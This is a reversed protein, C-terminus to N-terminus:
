KAVHKGRKIAATDSLAEPAHSPAAITSDELSLGLAVGAEAVTDSIATLRLQKNLQAASRRASCLLQLAATDCADVESLDLALEPARALVEALVNRLEDATSIHLAGELKLLGDPTNKAVHM